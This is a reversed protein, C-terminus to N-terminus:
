TEVVDRCGRQMNSTTPNTDKCWDMQRKEDWPAQCLHQPLDATTLSHSDGGFLSHKYRVRRSFACEVDSFYSGLQALPTVPATEQM